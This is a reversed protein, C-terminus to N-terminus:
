MFTTYEPPHSIGLTIPCLITRGMSPVKRRPMSIHHYSVIPTIRVGSCSDTYLNHTCQMDLDCVTDRRREKSKESVTFVWAGGQGEAQLM